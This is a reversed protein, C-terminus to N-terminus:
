GLAQPTAPSSSSWSACFHSKIAFEAAPKLGLIWTCTHSFKESCSQPIPALICGYRPDEFKSLIKLLTLLHCPWHKSSRCTPFSYPWKDYTSKPTHDLSQSLEILSHFHPSFASPAPDTSHQLDFLLWSSSPLCKPSSRVPLYEIYIYFRIQPYKLHAM